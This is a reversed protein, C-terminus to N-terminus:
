YIKAFLPIWHQNTITSLVFQILDPRNDKTHGWTIQIAPTGEVHEYNGHVSVRTTDAHLLQTGFPPHQMVQLAIKPFLETSDAEYIQDFTRGLDDSNIDEPLVSPGLTYEGELVIM